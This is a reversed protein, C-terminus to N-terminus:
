ERLAPTSLMQSPRRVPSTTVAVATTTPSPRTYVPQFAGSGLMAVTAVGRALRAWLAHGTRTECWRIVGVVVGYVLGALAIGIAPMQGTLYDRLWPPIRDLVGAALAATWLGQVGARIGAFVWARIKDLM